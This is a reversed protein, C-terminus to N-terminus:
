RRIIKKAESLIMGRTVGRRKVDYTMASVIGREKGVVCDLRHRALTPIRMDSHIQPGWKDKNLIERGPQRCM